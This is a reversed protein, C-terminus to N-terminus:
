EQRHLSREPDFGDPYRKRLKEINREMAEDLSSDAYTELMCRAIEIIEEIGLPTTDVDLYPFEGGNKMRENNLRNYESRYCVIAPEDTPEIGYSTGKYKVPATYEGSEICNYYNSYPRQCAMILLYADFAPSVPTSLYGRVAIREASENVIRAFDFGRGECLEACYWLIDGIEKILADKPFPPNEGSQFMWKKIVDVVEGAEGMLGLCGNLIRDHGETSTRMALGQYESINM